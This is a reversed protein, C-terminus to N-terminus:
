FRIMIGNTVSGHYSNDGIEDYIAGVMATDGSVVVSWGFGDYAEGDPATLKSQETWNGDARTFTYVAGQDINELVDSKPTGVLVTNGSLAVSWGFWDDEAGDLATLRAQQVWNPGEAIFVYAAGQARADNITKSNAGVVATGDSLAVSWGFDDGTEGDDAILKAQQTWKTGERTFIYAAGQATKEGITTGSAGVLAIDTGLAVSVGFYDDGAGDAAVLKQQFSWSSGDYVFVYAAGQNANGDITACDAGILATNGLVAVSIGFDELSAGDAAFAKQEFFALQKVYSTGKLRSSLPIVEQIADILGNIGNQQPSGLRNYALFAIPLCVMSLVTLYVLLIISIRFFRKMTHGGRRHRRAYKVPNAVLVCRYSGKYKFWHTHNIQKTIQFEPPQQEIM